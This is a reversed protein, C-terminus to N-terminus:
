TGPVYRQALRTAFACGVAFAVGVTWGTTAIAMADLVAIGAILRGVAVGVRRQTRRLPMLGWVLSCVMAAVLLRVLAPDESTGLPMPPGWPSLSAGVWLPAAVVFLVPWMSRPRVLDEQKAAYTLGVVYCWQLLAVVLVPAPLEGSVASAVVCYVLARCAGMVVPSLPNDKHYADYGVIAAGLLCAWGTTRLAAHGLSWALWTMSGVGAGLGSFGVILAARRSVVNSPIPRQPRHVADYRADFADNLVMGSVYFISMVAMSVVLPWSVFTEGSLAVAALTNTWVTPVNSVRGLRLWAVARGIAAPEVAGSM